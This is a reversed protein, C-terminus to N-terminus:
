WWELWYDITDRGEEDIVKGADFYGEYREPWNYLGAGDLFAREDIRAQGSFEVFSNPGIQSFSRYGLGRLIKAGESDQALTDGFPWFFLDTRGVINATWDLWQQADARIEDAELTSQELYEFGLSAFTYGNAELLAAVETAREIEAVHDEDDPATRYGLNGSYGALSITARAGRWSFAPNDEIFRDLIPIVDNDFSIVDQATGANDAATFTAIREDSIILRDVMGRGEHRTSYSLNEISLVIPKKDKPIRLVTPSVAGKEDVSFLTELGVLIYDNEYLQKLIRKFEVTTIYDNAYDLPTLSPFALLPNLTFHRVPATWTQMEDNAKRRLEPIQAQAIAYNEADIEAVLEYLDAAEESGFPQDAAKKAAAFAARSDVLIDFIRKSEVLDGHEPRLGLAIDLYAGAVQEELIKNKYQVVVNVARPVIIEGILESTLRFSEVFASIAEENSEENAARSLETDVHRSALWWFITSSGPIRAQTGADYAAAVAEADQLRIAHTFRTYRYWAGGGIAAILLAIVVIIGIAYPVWRPLRRRSSMRM